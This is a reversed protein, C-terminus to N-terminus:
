HFFVTDLRKFVVDESFNNKFFTEAEAALEERHSKNELLERIHGAFGEPDDATLCGNNIRCEMGVAGYSTTVVPVGFSLSEIVKIKLGTGGLLPCMSLRAWRYYQDLDEVYELFTVNKCKKKYKDLYRNIKGIIVIKYDRPLRPYVKDFFWATGERNFPNDSAALLIDVTKQTGTVPGNQPLMHPIYYFQPKKCFREFFVKEETSICMVKDYVNIRRIEEEIMEGIKFNGKISEFRNVTVFDSLDLLTVTRRGRQRLARSEMLKGWHVYSMLVIDYKNKKLLADFQRRLDTFALDPFDTHKIKSLATGREVETQKSQKYDNLYLGNLLGGSEWDTDSWSDVFNQHSLMDVICDRSKLYKLLRYFRSNIGMTKQFPNHPYFILVKKKSKIGRIKEKLREKVSPRAPAPNEKEGATGGAIYNVIEEEAGSWKKYNEKVFEHANRGITKFGSFDLPRLDDYDYLLGNVGHRIYENMTPENPAAVCMGMAMAEIFSMGIGEFRRPAFFIDARGLRALFEGKNEFWDSFTINHKKIDDEGPRVFGAGPDPVAHIHLGEFPTDAILRKIHEWTVAGTRQWFFGRPHASGTHPGAPAPPAIYQVYLSTLGLGELKRHLTQSFNLFRAGRYKLWRADKVHRTGDFLPVIAMGAPDFRGLLDLPPLVQLFVLRSYGKGAMSPYDPPPGGNWSDDWYTDIDFHKGLMDSLFAFSLTKRHYSHDILAIKPRKM